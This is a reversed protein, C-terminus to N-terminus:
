SPGFMEGHSQQMMMMIMCQVSEKLSSLQHQQMTLGHYVREAHVLSMMRRLLMDNAGVACAVLVFYVIIGQSLSLIKGRMTVCIIESATM